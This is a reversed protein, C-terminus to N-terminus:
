KYKPLQQELYEILYKAYAPSFESGEFVFVTEAKHKEYTKKFRSLRPRNWAVTKVYQSM